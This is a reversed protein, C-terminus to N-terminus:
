KETVTGDPVGYQSLLRDQRRVKRNRREGSKKNAGNKDVSGVAGLGASKVESGSAATVGSKSMIENERVPRIAGTQKKAAGVECKNGVTAPESKKKSKTQIM